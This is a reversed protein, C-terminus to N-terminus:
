RAEGDPQTLRYQNIQHWSQKLRSMEEPSPVLLGYRVNVYHRTILRFDDACAPLLRELTLLYEYPTQFAPRRWGYSAAWQLVQRYLHRVSAIEPPGAKAQRRVPRLRLLKSLIRKLFGLIDARFAGPMSEVEGGAMNALRRRMWASIQLSVRWLVLLVLGLVVITWGLRLGRRLPEPIAWDIGGEKPEGATQNLGPITEVPGPPPLLSVLYELLGMVQDWVWAAAAVIVQLLDPTMVSGVVLGLVLVLGISLLLLGPWHGRLGSLWGTDERAHAVSMGLLAFIFFVLIVTIANDMPVGLESVAFFVVLMVALGFQFEGLAMAFSIRIHALHWGLWWTLVSVLFLLLPPPFDYLINAIAQPLALLWAPNSLSLDAYLQAKLMLLMVVAWALLNVPYIIVGPWKLHKFILNFAFVLPYTLLFQYIALRGSAVKENLLILLVYLACGEMGMIAAYVIGRRWDLRM